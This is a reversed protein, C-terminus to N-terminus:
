CNNDMTEEGFGHSLLSEQYLIVTYRYIVTVQFSKIM